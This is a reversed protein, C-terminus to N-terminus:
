AGTEGSLHSELRRLRARQGVVAERGEVKDPGARQANAAEGQDVVASILAVIQTAKDQGTQSGTDGGAHLVVRGGV